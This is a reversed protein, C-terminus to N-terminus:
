GSYKKLLEVQEDMFILQFDVQRSAFTALSEIAHAVVHRLM